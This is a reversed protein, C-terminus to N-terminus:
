TGTMTLTRQTAHTVAGKSQEQHLPADLPLTQLQIEVCNPDRLRSLTFSVRHCSPILSRKTLGPCRNGLNALYLSSYLSSASQGFYPEDFSESRFVSPARVSDYGSAGVWQSVEVDVDPQQSPRSLYVQSVIAHLLGLADTHRNRVDFGNVRPLASSEPAWGTVPIQYQLGSTQDPYGAPREGMALSTPFPRPGQAVVSQLM